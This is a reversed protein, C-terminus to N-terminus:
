ASTFFSPTQLFHLIKACETEKKEPIDTEPIDEIYCNDQFCRGKSLSLLAMESYEKLKYNKLISGINQRGSPIVREKVWTLSIDESVTYIKEYECWMAWLM